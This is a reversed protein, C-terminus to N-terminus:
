QWFLYTIDDYGHSAKRYLRQNTTPCSLDGCKDNYSGLKIFDFINMWDEIICDRGSYLCTKFGSKHIQECITKFEKHEDKSNLGEGLFCVCSIKKSYAELISHYIEILSVGTSNWLHPSFCNKCRNQCEAIHFNLCVENPVELSYTVNYDYFNLM